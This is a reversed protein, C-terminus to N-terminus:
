EVEPCGPHSAHNAVAQAAAEWAQKIKDHLNDWTPLATGSVLSVGGASKVYAEYAIMGFSQM